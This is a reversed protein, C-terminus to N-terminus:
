FPVDSPEVEVIAAQDVTLRLNGRFTEAKSGGSANVAWDLVSELTDKGTFTKTELWMDGVSENGASRNLIAVVMM